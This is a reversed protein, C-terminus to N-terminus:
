LSFYENEKLMVKKLRKITDKFEATNRFSIFFFVNSIVFVIIAALLISLISVNTLLEKTSFYAIAGALLVSIYYTIFRFYYDTCPKGFAFKYTIIPRILIVIRSCLTGIYVGVLGWFHAGIVSVILNVVAQVVANSKDINFNGMASRAYAYISCQGQLYYNTVILFFSLEDILKDKGIWITIIPPVLVFFAICCFGYTWFNIFNATLFVKHYNEKTSSAVLNGFGPIISEFLQSVFGLVANM